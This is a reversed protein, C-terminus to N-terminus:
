IGLYAKQINPNKSFIERDEHFQVTGSELLYAHDAVRLAKKVNQEAMLVTYGQSKIEEIVRFVENVVLPALGMSPEDLLIVQPQSILARAIALMQREGGSLSGAVQGQREKLIPFLKFIGQIREKFHKRARRSYTGVKLNNYVTLRPFARGGEPVICIGMGAIRYAEEHDIAQGNFHVTGSFPRLLGTIVKLLTTKGAGNPGVIIATEGQQVELSVEKLITIEGYGAVMKEIKIM